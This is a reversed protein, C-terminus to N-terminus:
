APRVPNFLRVLRSLFDLIAPLLPLPEDLVEHFARVDYLVDHYDWIDGLGFQERLGIALWLKGDWTSPDHAVAFYRGSAPAEFFRTAWINSPTGTFIEDFFTPTDDVALDRVGGLPAPVPFPVPDDGLGPGVVALGPRYGALRDILPTGLQLYVTEGATLDMSLWFADQGSMDQYAVQSLGPDAVYLAHEADPHPAGDEIPTHALAAPAALVTALLVFAVALGGSRTVLVSSSRM